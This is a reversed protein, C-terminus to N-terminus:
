RPQGIAGKYILGLAPPLSPQQTDALLYLQACLVLQVCYLILNSVVPVSQISVNYQHHFGRVSDSGRTGAVKWCQGGGGGVVVGGGWGSM